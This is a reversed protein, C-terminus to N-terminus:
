RPRGAFRNAFRNRNVLAEGFEFNCGVFLAAAM